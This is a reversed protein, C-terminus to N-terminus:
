LVDDNEKESEDLSVVVCAFTFAVVIFLFVAYMVDVNALEKM